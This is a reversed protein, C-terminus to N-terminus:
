SDRRMAAHARAVQARMETSVASDVDQKVPEVDSSYAAALVKMVAFQDQKPKPKEDEDEFRLLFLPDNAPKRDKVAVAMNYIMAVVSAARQDARLENFPELRAYCEWEIFQKATLSRLMANVNVRGLRVAM